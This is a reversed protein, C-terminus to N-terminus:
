DGKIKDWLDYGSCDTVYVEAGLAERVNTVTTDDLFKETEYRLMVSPILIRRSKIKGKLQKIIDGGTILGAVTIREGFFDNRVTHVAIDINNYRTNAM